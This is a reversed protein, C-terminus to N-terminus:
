NGEPQQSLEFSINVDGGGCILPDKPNEKSSSAPPQIPAQPQLPAVKCDVPMDLISSGEPVHTSYSTSSSEQEAVEPQGSFATDSIDETISSPVLVSSGSAATPQNVDSSVANASTDETISPVLVSSERAAIPQNVDSSVANDSTDETISPVLVSSGSATPQNLDSSVANDSTDETTSPVLASSESAATPQDSVTSDSIPQLPAVFESQLAPQLPAESSTFNPFEDM